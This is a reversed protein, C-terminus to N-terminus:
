WEPGGGAGHSYPLGTRNKSSVTKRLTRRIRGMMKRREQLVLIIM